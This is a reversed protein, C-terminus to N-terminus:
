SAETWASLDRGLWAALDQIDGSLRSALERHLARDMQPYEVRRRNFKRIARRVSPPASWALKQLARSRYEAYENNPKGALGPKRTHDVGLFRCVESFTQEPRDVLDEFLIVLLAERPYFECVARLQRAYRGMDVYMFNHREAGPPEHVPEGALADAFPRDEIALSRNFWYHSYARDIPNRLIAILRAEPVSSAMRERADPYYMYMPTAEGVATRTGAGAFRERYWSVGREWRWDFFHLEKERPIFVEPHERLYVALSTTGSRMAGMVLFTPVGATTTASRAASRSRAHDKATV